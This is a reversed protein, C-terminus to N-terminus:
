NERYCNALLLFGIAINFYAMSECYFMLQMINCIALSAPTITCKFKNPIKM